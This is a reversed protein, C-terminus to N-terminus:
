LADLGDDLQAEQAAEIHHQFFDVVAEPCTPSRVAVDFPTHHHFNKMMLAEPYAEYVLKVIDLCVPHGGKVSVHLPCNSHRDIIQASRPNSTVIQKVIDVGCELSLATGLTSTLDPGDAHELVDSGETMLLKLVDIPANYKLAINVPYAYREQKRRKNGADMIEEEEEEDTEKTNCVISIPRRIAGPDMSLASEIVAFVEPYLKCSNHLLSNTDM